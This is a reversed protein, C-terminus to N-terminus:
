PINRAITRTNWTHSARSRAANRLATAPPAASRAITSSRKASVSHTARCRDPDAHVLALDQVLPEHERGVGLERPDRPSAHTSGAHLEDAFVHDTQEAEGGGRGVEENPMRVFRRREGKGGFPIPGRQVALHRGVDIAKADVRSESAEPAARDEPDRRTIQRACGDVVDDALDAVDGIGAYLGCTRGGQRHDREPLPPAALQVVRGVDVQQEHVLDLARPRRLQDPGEGLLGLVPDRELYIRRQPRSAAAGCQAPRELRGERVVSALGGRPLALRHDLSSRGRAVEREAFGEDPADLLEHVGIVQLGCRDVLDAPRLNPQLLVDTLAALLEGLDLAAAAPDAVDLERDLQQLDHM